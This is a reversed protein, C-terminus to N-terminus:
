NHESTIFPAVTRAIPTLRYETSKDLNREILDLGGDRKRMQSIHNGVVNHKLGSRDVIEKSRFWRELNKNKSLIKYIETLVRRAGKHGDLWRISDTIQNLLPVERITDDIPQEPRFKSPHQRLINYGVQATYARIRVIPSASFAAIIYGMPLEDILAVHITGEPNREGEDRLLDMFTSSLEAMSTYAALPRTEIKTDIRLEGRKEPRARQRSERRIIDGFHDALAQCNRDAGGGEQWPHVLIIRNPGLHRAMPVVLTASPGHIPVVLTDAM